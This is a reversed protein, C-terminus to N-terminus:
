SRLKPEIPKKNLPTERPIAKVAKTALAKFDAPNSWVPVEVGGRFAGEQNHSCGTREDRQQRLNEEIEPNQVDNLTDTM